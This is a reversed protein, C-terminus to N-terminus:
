SPGSLHRAVRQGRSCAIATIRTKTPGWTPALSDPITSRGPSIISTWSQKGTAVVFHPCTTQNQPACPSVKLMVPNGSCIYKEVTVDDRNDFRGKFAMAVGLKTVAYKAVESANVGHAGDFGSPQDNLWDNVDRPSAVVSGAYYDLIMTSSTLFCGFDAILRLFNSKPDGPTALLQLSNIPGGPVLSLVTGYRHSDPPLLTASTGDAAAGPLSAGLGNLNNSSLGIHITKAQSPNGQSTGIPFELLDMASGPSLATSGPLLFKASEYYKDYTDFGWPDASQKILPVTLPQCIKPTLKYIVEWDVPNSVFNAQDITVAKFKADISLDPQGATPIPTFTPSLDPQQTLAGNPGLVYVTIGTPTGNVTYTAGKIISPLVVLFYKCNILDFYLGAKDGPSSPGFSGNASIDIM